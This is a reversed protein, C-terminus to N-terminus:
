VKSPPKQQIDKESKNGRPCGHRSWKKRVVCIIVLLLPLFFGVTVEFSTHTESIWKDKHFATNPFLVTSLVIVIIGLPLILPRYSKMNFVQSLGLITTYFYIVSKFYITIFWMGAMIIEIRQIFDGVNIKKALTYSPFLQKEVYYSGLVSISLFTIIVMVMYGITSGILFAKQSDKLRNVYAPFIMLLTVASFSSTAVLFLAGGMLPKLKAELVPQINNLDIQPSVFLVLVTFLLFFFPIMFEASRAIPELGISVAILILIGFLINIVEIPTETIVQTTLFNGVYYILANSALFTFSLLMLSIMKGLWKGLLFESIQVFTMNPFYSALVNYLSIVLFNIGISIIATIWADQKAYAALGSPVNLISTGITFLIVLVMFQHVSIKTNDNV